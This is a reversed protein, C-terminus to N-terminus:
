YSRATHMVKKPAEVQTQDKREPAQPSQRDLERAQSRCVLM